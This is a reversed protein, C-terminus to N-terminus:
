PKGNRGNNIFREVTEALSSVSARLSSNIEAQSEFARTVIQTFENQSEALIGLQHSTREVQQNTKELQIEFNAQNQLLTEIAREVEENTM